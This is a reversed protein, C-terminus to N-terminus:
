HRDQHLKEQWEQEHEEGKDDEDYMRLMNNEEEKKKKELMDFYESFDQSVEFKRARFKKRLAFANLMLLDAVIPALSLLTSSTSVKMIIAALSVQEGRGVSRFYFRVGTMEYFLREDPTIYEPYGWSYGINNKDFLVDVRRTKLEPMCKDKGADCKWFFQVEVVAGLESIEEYRVPVPKCKLLLDRVTFVNYDKEPYPHGSETSYITSPALKIFQISAKTWISMHAVELEYIEPLEEVNCWSPEECYRNETCRGRIPELTSNVPNPLISCDYDSTCPMTHDECVGRSQRYIKQRTSVFVNGNELGPHTLEEASFYRVGPKGSSVAFADGRVHTAVGGRAEEFELYGESGIFIGFVIYLGILGQITLNTIGLWRDQVNVQQKTLYSFLKDQDVNADLIEM